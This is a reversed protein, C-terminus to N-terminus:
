IIQLITLSLYGKWKELLYKIYFLRSTRSLFLLSITTFYLSMRYNHSLHLMVLIVLLTLILRKHNIKMILPTIILKKKVQIIWLFLIFLLILLPLILILVLFIWHATQHHNISKFRFNIRFFFVCYVKKSHLYDGDAHMLRYTYVDSQISHFSQHYFALPIMWSFICFICLSLFLCLCIIISFPLRMHGKYLTVTEQIYIIQISLLQRKNLKKLIIHFWNKKNKWNQCFLKLNRDWIGRLLFTHCKMSITWVM